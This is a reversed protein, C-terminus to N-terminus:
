IKERISFIERRVKLRNRGVGGAHEQDAGQHGGRHDGRLDGGIGQDALCEGEVALLAADDPLCNMIGFLESELLM